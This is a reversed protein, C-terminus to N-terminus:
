DTTLRWLELSRRGKMTQPVLRLADVAEGPIPSSLEITGGADTPGDLALEERALVEGGRRWQLDYRQGVSLEIEVHEVLRPAPFQVEIGADRFREGKRRKRRVRRAPIVRLEALVYRESDLADAWGRRWVRLMAGLRGPAFVPGCHVSRLDEFLAALAPDELANKGSRLSDLYGAPMIRPLHGAKWAVRRVPPVRALLPDALAFADVVHVEPAVYFGFYGMTNFQVVPTLVPDHGEARARWPHDPLSRGREFVLLAAYQAYHSREDSIGGSARPPDEGRDPALPHRTGLGALVCAVLALPLALKWSRTLAPTDALVLAGILAPATLFRGEMFDGGIVVVYALYLIAGLCLARTRTSGLGVWPGLVAALLLLATVPDTSLTHGLYSLGRGILELRDLSGTLKALATNPVLAGYYLLSFLSWLALVLAGPVLAALRERWPGAARPGRLREILAPLVLLIADPRCLYALAFVLGANRVLTRPRERDVPRSALAFSAVVVLHTAPNELGSSSYEVFARSSMLAAALVLLAEGRGLQRGAAFVVIGSVGIGLALSTFFAEGSVGYGLLLAAMWVPHTYAQVRWGHNFVLGHGSWFQSVTRLTIFADDCVWANLTVVALVAATAAAIALWGLEREPNSDSM